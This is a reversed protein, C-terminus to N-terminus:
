WSNRQEDVVKGRELRSVVRSGVGSGLVDGEALEADAIIGSFM